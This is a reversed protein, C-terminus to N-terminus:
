EGNRREPRSWRLTNCFTPVGHRPRPPSRLTNSISSLLNGGISAQGDISGINTIVTSGQNDIQVNKKVVVSTLDTQYLEGPGNKIHLSGRYRDGM